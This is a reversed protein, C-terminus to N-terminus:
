PHLYPPVQVTHDTLLQPEDREGLVFISGDLGPLLVLDDEGAEAEAEEAGAPVEEEEGGKSGFAARAEELCAAQEGGGDPSVRPAPAVSTGPPGAPLPAGGERMMPSSAHPRPMPPPSRSGPAGTEAEDDAAPSAPPSRPGSLPLPRGAPRGTGGDGQPTGHDSSTGWGFQERDAAVEGVLWDAGGAAAAQQSAVEEARQQQLMDLSSSSLLKGGSDFSWLMAGSAGDVAHVVGDMTVVMLLTEDAHMPLSNPMPMLADERGDGDGGPLGEGPM